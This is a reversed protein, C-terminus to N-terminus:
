KADKKAEELRHNLDEIQAELMGMEELLTSNYSDLDRNSVIVDSLSDALFEIREADTNLGLHPPWHGVQADTAIQQLRARETEDM